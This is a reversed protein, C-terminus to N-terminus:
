YIWRTAAIVEEASSGAFLAVEAQRVAMVADFLPDGMAQRLLSSRRLHELTEPLSQPLRDAGYAAREAEGLLVPDVGVEVPLRLGGDIGALGAAITAGVLLYPNASADFCKIDVNAAQAQDGAMGTIFRIAAERNELGWCRFAGAWHSPVLRLYSAVSPAGLALLGPLEALVGALFSEAEVTMGHPGPGGHFLNVGDRWLSMHLHCGNGVGSAVVAPAFSVHVGRSESVARITQRVLVSLDATGVPDTAAVSIEFQGPAYEPHVQLVEVNQAALAALLERLYDSLEVLRTMGYAPGTCAPVVQEGTQYGLVWEIEFGARLELGREGASEVMRRAFSRQCAPHPEGSQTYRDVPAWAWGPQTALRTARELDPFLRLDGVPGGIHTSTTMSDDVLFVDFCPSAGVGWAVAHEFQAAPVAKVRTIGANDV